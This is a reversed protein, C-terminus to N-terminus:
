APPNKKKEGAAVWSHKARIEEYFDSFVAWFRKPAGRIDEPRNFRYHASRISLTIEKRAQSVDLRACVYWGANPGDKLNAKLRYFIEKSGGPLCMAHSITQVMAPLQRSFSWREPCFVREDIDGDRKKESFLVAEEPEDKRSKTWCHNSYYVSVDVLFAEGAIRVEVPLTADALHDNTRGDLAASIRDQHM